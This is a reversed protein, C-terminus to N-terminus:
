VGAVHHVYSFIAKQVVPWEAGFHRASIGEVEFHGEVDDVFSLMEAHGYKEALYRVALDAIGYDASVLWDADSPGPGRADLSALKHTRLYHRVDPLRAYDAAPATWTDIYEAVGETVWWTTSSTATMTVVHGLEHRLTSEVDSAPDVSANLVVVSDGASVHISYGVAWAPQDGGYWQTWESRDALYIVYKGPHHGPDFTDANAAAREAVALTAPLRAQLSSPAAVITRAGAAFLLPTQMWPQPDPRGVSDDEGNDASVLATGNQIRWRLVLELHQTPDGQAPATAAQCNPAGLCLSVKVTSRWFEGSPDDIIAPGTSALWEGVHLGRLGDFWRRYQSVLAPQAPDVEALWDSENGASLAADQARLARAILGGAASSPDSTPLGTDTGQGAEPHGSSSPFEMILGMVAIAVLVASGGAALWVRRYRRRRTQYAVPEHWWDPLRGEAQAPAAQPPVAQSPAAPTPVTPSPQAAEADPPV